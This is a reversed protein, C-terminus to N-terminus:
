RSTCAHRGARGPQGAHGPEAPRGLARGAAPRRARGGPDGRDGLRGPRRRARRGRGGPGARGRDAGAPRAPRASTLARARVGDARSQAAPLWVRATGGVALQRNLEAAVDPVAHWCAPPSRTTRQAAWRSGCTPCTPTSTSPATAPATRGPAPPPSGRGPWHRCSTPSPWAGNTLSPFAPQAPLRPRCSSKPWASRRMGAPRRGPRALRRPGHLRPRVVRAGPQGPHVRARRRGRRHQRVAPGRGHDRDPLGAARRPRRGPLPGAAAPRPRDVWGRAHPVRVEDAGDWLLTEQTIRLDGLTLEALLRAGLPCRQATVKASASASGSGPGKPSLLWPGEGWRPHQGYEEQLVLENGGPRLLEAGTRKDTVRALTGGRAPDAALGFRDNEIVTGPQPEWSQAPGGPAAAVWYTQYGLAPVGDARFTLTLSALTGDPHRQAGEALVPVGAGAQDRLRIWAPGPAPFELEATVLGSRPWSLTNFVALATVGAPRRPTPRRRGSRRGGGPPGPRRTGLSGALRGAPGPVGPRVRHRHDRRPPRRLGAPAVGQGAVRAPYGAGALWALTALREGDAVATEAARQAQKTDIYSVDKGPYVPNM